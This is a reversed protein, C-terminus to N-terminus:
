SCIREHLVSSFTYLSCYYLKSASRASAGVFAVNLDANLPSVGAPTRVSAGKLSPNFQRIIDTILALFLFANIM